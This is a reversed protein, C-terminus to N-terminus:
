IPPRSYTEFRIKRERVQHNPNRKTETKNTRAVSAWRAVLIYASYLAFTLRRFVPANRRTKGIKSGRVDDWQVTRYPRLSSIKYTRVKIVRKPKDREGAEYRDVLAETVRVCTVPDDYRVDPCPFVGPPDEIRWVRLVSAHRSYTAAALHRNFKDLSAHLCSVFASRGSGQEDVRIVRLTVM